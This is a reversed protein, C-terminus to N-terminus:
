TATQLLHLRADRRGEIIAKVVARATPEEDAELAPPPLPDPPPPTPQSYAALSDTVRQEGSREDHEPPPHPEPIGNVARWWRTLKDPEVGALAALDAWIASFDPWKM